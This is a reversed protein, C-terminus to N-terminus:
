ADAQDEEPTDMWDMFAMHLFGLLGREYRRTARNAERVWTHLGELVLRRHMTSFSSLRWIADAVVLDLAGSKADAIRFLGRLAQMPFLRGVEDGYAMAATHLLRPDDAQRSWRKVLNVVQTDFAPNGAPVGLAWAVTERQRRDDSRALVAFAREYVHRFDFTSLRGLAAAAGARMDAQEDAAAELLWDLLARRARDYETWVTDLLAGPLRPNVYQVVEVPLSGLSTWEARGLQPKAKISKLRADRDKAFLPRPEPRELAAARDLLPELAAAADLVIQYKTENFVALAICFAFEHNGELQELTELALKRPQDLLDAAEDESLEDRHVALVVRALEAVKGPTADDSLYRAVLKSALLEPPPGMDAGAAELGAELHAALIDRRWQDLEEDTLDDLSVVAGGLPDLSRGPQGPEHSVTFVLYPGPEGPQTSLRGVHFASLREVQELSLTDALYGQGPELDATQLQAVQVDPDMRHVKKALKALLHLGITAKGAGPGGRLVVTHHEALRQEAQDYLRPPPAFASHIADLDREPVEGTAPPGDEGARGQRFILDGEVRVSDFINQGSISSRARKGAQQEEHARRAREEDQIWSLKEEASPDDTAGDEKSSKPPTPQDASADNDDPQRRGGKGGSEPPTTDDPSDAAAEPGPRPREPTPTV